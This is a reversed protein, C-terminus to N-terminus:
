SNEFKKKLREYEKRETEAKLKKKEKVEKKARDFEAQEKELREARETDTEPRYYTDLLNGECIAIEILSIGDTEMRDAYDRLYEPTIKSIELEEFGFPRRTSILEQNNIKM